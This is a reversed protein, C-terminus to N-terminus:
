RDTSEFKDKMREYYEREQQEVWERTSIKEEVPEDASESDVFKMTIEDGLKVHLQQVWRPHVSVGSEHDYLGGVTFMMEEDANELKTRDLIGSLLLLDQKGARCLKEGNLFVDLCIM